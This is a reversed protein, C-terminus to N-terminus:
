FLVAKVKEDIENALKFADEKNTFSKYVGATNLVNWVQRVAVDSDVITYKDEEKKTIINKPVPRKVTIINYDLDEIKQEFKAKTYEEKSLEYYDVRPLLNVTNLYFMRKDDTYKSLDKNIIEINDMFNVINTEM